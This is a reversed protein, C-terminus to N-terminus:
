ILKEHKHVLPVVKLSEITGFISINTENIKQM